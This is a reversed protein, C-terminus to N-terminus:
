KISVLYPRIYDQFGGVLTWDIDAADFGKIEDKFQVMWSKEIDLKEKIALMANYGVEDNDSWFIYKRKRNALMSWDTKDVSSTGFAWSVVPYPSVRRLVDCAKEGEVIIVLDADGVTQIMYPPAQNGFGKFTWKQHKGNNVYVFPRIQKTGEIEWRCIYGYLRGNPYRYIFVWNPVGFKYHSISTVVYERKPDIREYDPKTLVEKVVDTHLDTVDGQIINLAENYTHGLARLFSIADGAKGCGFCHFLGKADNVYMSPSSEEHFVCKGVLEKGAKELEPQYLRVLDSLKFYELSPHKPM